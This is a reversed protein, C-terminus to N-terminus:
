KIIKSKEVWGTYTEDDLYLIIKVWSGERKEVIISQGTKLQQSLVVPAMESMDHRLYTDSLIVANYKGTLDIHLNDEWLETTFELAEETVPSIFPTFLYVLISFMIQVPINKSLKEFFDQYTSTTQLENENISRLQEQIELQIHAKMENSLETEDEIDNDLTLNDLYSFDLAALQEYPITNRIEEVVNVFSPIRVMSQRFVNIMETTTAQQTQLATVMQSSISNQFKQFQKIPEVAAAQANLAIDNYIRINQLSSAQFSQMVTQINKLSEIFEKSFYSDM